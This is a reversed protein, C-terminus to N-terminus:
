NMKDLSWNVANLWTTPRDNGTYKKATTMNLVSYYTGIGECIEKAMVDQSPDYRRDGGKFWGFYNSKNKTDRGMGTEAVSIAIVKKLTPEDCYKNLLGLYEDSIRSGNYSHVFEVIKNSAPLAISTQEIVPEVPAVPETYNYKYWVKDAEQQIKQTEQEFERKAELDNARVLSYATVLILTWVVLVTVLKLKAVVKDRLINIVM